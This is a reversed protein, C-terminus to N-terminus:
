DEVVRITERRATDTTVTFAGREGPVPDIRGGRACLTMAYRAAMAHAEWVDTPGHFTGFTFTQGDDNTTTARATM